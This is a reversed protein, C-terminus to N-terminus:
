LAFYLWLFAERRTFSFKPGILCTTVGNLARLYVSLGHRCVRWYKVNLYGHLRHQRMVRMWITMRMTRWKLSTIATKMQPIVILDWCGVSVPWAFHSRRFIERHQTGIDCKTTLQLKQLQMTGKRKTNRIRSHFTRRHLNLVANYRINCTSTADFVM